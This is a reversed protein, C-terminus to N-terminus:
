LSIVVCTSGDRQTAFVCPSGDGPDAARGLTVGSEVLATVLAVIKEESRLGRLAREIQQTPTLPKATPADAHPAGAGSLCGKCYVFDGIDAGGTCVTVEAGTFEEDCGDCTCTEPEDEHQAEIEALDCADDGSESYDFGDQMPDFRLVIASGYEDTLFIEYEARDFFVRANFDAGMTNRVFHWRAEITRSSSPEDNRDAEAWEHWANTAADRAEIRGQPTSLTPGETVGAAEVSIEEVRTAGGWGRISKVVAMAADFTEFVRAEDRNRTSYKGEALNPVGTHAHLYIPTEPALVVIFKTVFM